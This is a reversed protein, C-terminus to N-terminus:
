TLNGRDIWDAKSVKKREDIDAKYADISEKSYYGRRTRILAGTSALEAFRHVTFELVEMAEKRSYETM